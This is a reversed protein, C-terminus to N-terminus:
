VPLPAPRKIPKTSQNLPLSVHLTHHFLLIFILGCCSTSLLLLQGFVLGGIVETAEALVAVTATGTQMKGTKETFPVAQARHVGSEWKLRGFAGQGTIM